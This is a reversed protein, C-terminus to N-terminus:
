RVVVLAWLALAGFVCIAFLLLLLTVKGHIQYQTENYITYADILLIIADNDWPLDSHEPMICYLYDDARDVLIADCRLQYDQVSLLAYALLKCANGSRAYLAFGDRTWPLRIQQVVNRACKKRAEAVSIENEM